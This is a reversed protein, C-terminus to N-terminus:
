RRRVSRVSPPKCILVAQWARASDAWVQVPPCGPRTIELATSIALLEERSRPLGFCRNSAGPM